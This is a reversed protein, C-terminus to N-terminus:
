RYVARQGPAPTAIALIATKLQSIDAYLIAEVKIGHYESMFMEFVECFAQFEDEAM